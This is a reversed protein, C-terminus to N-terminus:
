RTADTFVGTKHRKGSRIHRVHSSHVGFQKSLQYSSLSSERIERVQSESLKPRVAHNNGLTEISHRINQSATVYELNRLCNNTKNGDIHNVQLVSPGIFAEMVFRHVLRRTVKGNEWLGVQLYGNSDRAPKLQKGHLNFVNGSADVHYSGIRRRESFDLELQM